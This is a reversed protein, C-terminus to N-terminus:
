RRKVQNVTGIYMEISKSLVFLLHKIELLFLFYLLYIGIPVNGSKQSYTYFLANMHFNLSTLIRYAPM